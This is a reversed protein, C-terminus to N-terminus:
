TSITSCATIEAKRETARLSESSSKLGTYWRSTVKYWSAPLWLWRTVMKLRVVRTASFSFLSNLKPTSLVASSATDARALSLGGMSAAAAM